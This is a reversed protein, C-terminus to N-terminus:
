GKPYQTKGGQPIMNDKDPVPKPTM